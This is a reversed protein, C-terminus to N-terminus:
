LLPQTSFLILIGWATWVSFWRKTLSYLCLGALHFTIFYSFHWLDPTYANPFSAQAMRVFIRALTVFAPGHGDYSSNYNPEYLLELSPHTPM